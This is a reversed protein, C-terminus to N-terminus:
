CRGQIKSRQLSRTKNRLLSRTNWEKSTVKYESLQWWWSVKGDTHWLFLPPKKCKNVFCSKFQHGLGQTHCDRCTEGEGQSGPPCDGGGGAGQHGPRCCLRPLPHSPLLSRPPLLACGDQPGAAASPPCHPPLWCKDVVCCGVHHCKHCPSM